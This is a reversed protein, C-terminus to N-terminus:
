YKRRLGKPLHNKLVGGSGKVWGLACGDAAFVTWGNRDAAVTEGHLYAATERSEAPFSVAMDGGQLWLALAHDPEFRGKKEEGLCLGARLVKLGQFAPMETPLLFYRTGFATLRGEPLCIGHDRLFADLAAPSKIGRELTCDSAETGNYQLVAAFHGEGRLLHPWLRFTRELGEAPDAVWEPRGRDFWPASVEAVSFDPHDHLFSSIVGENEEPAFTCTSYVLRGGARLMKSASELIERQRHACMEVTERSWDTVAAEEKRFMGEGSCPADVMIRDFYRPFRAALREPHENLVLANAIGMREINQSLIKARQPHIENAVLLGEGRLYGALQTSKGGPAACLDLVREGPLPHLLAAPAMASAEQLYYAGGDHFPHLGPRQAPDYYFGLPEWPVPETAFPLELAPYRANRRLAVARPRDFAALFEPLESGLLGEMKELFGNPLM